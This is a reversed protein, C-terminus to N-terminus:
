TFVFHEMFESKQSFRFFGLALGRRRPLSTCSRRFSKTTLVDLLQNSDGSDVICLLLLLKSYRSAFFESTSVWKKESVVKQIKCRQWKVASDLALHALLRWNPWHTFRSCYARLSFVWQETRRHNCALMARTYLTVRSTVRLFVDFHNGSAM